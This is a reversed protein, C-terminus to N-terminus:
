DVDYNSGGVSQEVLPQRHRHTGKGPGKKPCDDLWHPSEGPCNRCEIMCPNGLAKCEAVTHSPLNQWSLGMLYCNRCRKGFIAYCAYKLREDDQCHLMAKKCEDLSGAAQLKTMVEDVEGQDVPRGHFNYEPSPNQVKRLTTGNNSGGKAASGGVNDKVAGGKGGKRASSPASGGGQQPALHDFPVLGYPSARQTPAPIRPPWEAGTTERSSAAPNAFNKFNSSGGGSNLNANAAPGTTVRGRLLLKLFRTLEDIDETTCDGLMEFLEVLNPTVSRLTEGM